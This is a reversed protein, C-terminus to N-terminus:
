WWRYFLGVSANVSSIGSPVYDYSFPTNLYKVRLDAGVSGDRKFLVRAGAGLGYTFALKQRQDSLNGWYLTYDVFSGGASAQVYPRLMADPGAFHYNVFGQVPYQALTRTQVASIEQDGVQYTQRPLRQQFQHQGVEGGVSLQNRLVWEVSLSYNRLSLQDIYSNAFTGMPVAGMIRVTALYHAYREYPSPLSYLDTTRQALLPGTSLLALLALLYRYTTYRKM